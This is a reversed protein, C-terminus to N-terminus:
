RMAELSGRSPTTTSFSGPPISVTTPGRSRPESNGATAASSSEEPSPSNPRRPLRDGPSGGYGGLYQGDTIIADLWTANTYIRVAEVPSVVAELEFGSTETDVIASRRLHLSRRRHPQRRRGRLLHPRHFQARQARESSVRVRPHPKGGAAPDLSGRDACPLHFGTGLAGQLRDCGQRLPPDRHDRDSLRAPHVLDGQERLFGPRRLPGLRPSPIGRAVPHRGPRFREMASTSRARRTSPGRSSRPATSRTPTTAAGLTWTADKDPALQFGGRIRRRDARPPQRTRERGPDSPAREALPQLLHLLGM